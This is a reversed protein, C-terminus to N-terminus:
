TFYSRRSTRRKWGTVPADPHKANSLEPARPNTKEWRDWSYKVDASTSVRGNTPQRNDFKLGRLKFTVRLGDASQEYSKAFEPEWAGQPTDAFTGIKARMLNSYTNHILASGSGNGGLSQELTATAVNVALNLTGGRKRTTTQDTPQLLFGSTDRSGGASSSKDDDDDGGCAALFAAAAASGGTVALARRRGIRASTFREWYNSQM